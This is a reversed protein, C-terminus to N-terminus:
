VGETIEGMPLGEGMDSVEEESDSQEWSDNTEPKVEKGDDSSDNYERGM